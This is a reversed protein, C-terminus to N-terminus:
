TKNPIFNLLIYIGGRNWLFAMQHLRGLGGKGPHHLGGWCSQPSHESSQRETGTEGTSPDKEVVLNSLRLNSLWSFIIYIVKKSYNLPITQSSTVVLSPLAATTAEQNFLLYFWVGFQLTVLLQATTITCTNIRPSQDPFHFTSARRKITM